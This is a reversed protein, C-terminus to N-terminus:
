SPPTKPEPKMAAKLAHELQMKLSTVGDTLGRLKMSLGGGRAAMVSLAGAVDAITGINAALARQRLQSMERAIAECINQLIQARAARNSDLEAVLRHVRDVIKQYAEIEDIRRLQDVSLKEAM